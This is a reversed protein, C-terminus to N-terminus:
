SGAPPYAEPNEVPDPMDDAGPADVPVCPSVPGDALYATMMWVARPKEPDEPEMNERIDMVLTEGRKIHRPFIGIGGTGAVPHAAQFDPSREGPEAPEWSEYARNARRAPSCQQSLELYAIDATVGLAALDREVLDPDRFDHIKLIISGDPRTTLAYAATETGTVLPIMVAAAAAAGVAVAAALMRRPTFRRARGQAAQRAVESKLEMLLREEFNM